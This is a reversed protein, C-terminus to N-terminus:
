AYGNERAWSNWDHVMYPVSGRHAKHVPNIGSIAELAWFWTTPFESLRKILLPLITKGMGIVEQYAPHLAIQTPSSLMICDEEVESALQQFKAATNIRCYTLATGFALDSLVGERKKYLGELTDSVGVDWGHIVYTPVKELHLGSYESLLTKPKEHLALTPM